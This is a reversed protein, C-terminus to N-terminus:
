MAEIGIATHDVDERTGIEEPQQGGVLMRAHSASTMGTPPARGRGTTNAIRRRDAQRILCSRRQGNTQQCGARDRDVSTASLTPLGARGGHGHRDRHGLGARRHRGGDVRVASRAAAGHRGPLSHRRLRPGRAGWPPAVDLFPQQTGQRADGVPPTGNAAPRCTSRSRHAGPPLAGRLSRTRASTWRARPHTRTSVRWSTPM